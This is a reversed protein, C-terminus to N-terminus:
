WSSSIGGSAASGRARRCSRGPHRRATNDVVFEHFWRGALGAVTMANGIVIGGLAPAYLSAFRHPVGFVWLVSTAVATLALVGILTRLLVDPDDIM